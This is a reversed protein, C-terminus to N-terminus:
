SKALSQPQSTPLLCQSDTIAGDRMRIMRDASQAVEQDHTVVILTQGRERALSQFLEIIRQSNISDLAGTPEDALVIAPNTVIARAIAVRQSEGGSMEGPRHDARHAMGVAELTQNARRLCEAHKVRDLRLPVCVNERATLMPLLMGKQFVFGIRRRRLQTLSTESLTALDTSEFLVKGTTAKEIGGLLYLLTSKGCGSPGMISVFEGRGVELDVGSLVPLSASGLCYTKSLGTAKVITSM